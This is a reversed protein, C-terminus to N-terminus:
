LLRTHEKLMCRNMIVKLGAAMGKEAAAENIIGEQMWIVKVGLKIAENVIPLVDEPKRFIDVIDIKDPISSLDPYSTLGLVENIRPNVPIINYGKNKLYTAVKLSPRGKKDSLGIIAVTKADKLIKKIEEDIM